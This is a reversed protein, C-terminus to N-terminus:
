GSAMPETMTSKLPLGHRGGFTPRGEKLDGVDVGEKLMRAKVRDGTGGEYHYVRVKIGLITAGTPISFREDTGTQGGYIHHNKQGDNNLTTSAYDSEDGDCMDDPNSEWYYSTSRTNCEKAQSTM